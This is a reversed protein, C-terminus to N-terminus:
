FRQFHSFALSESIEMVIFIFYLFVNIFSHISLYICVYMLAFDFLSMCMSLLVSIVTGYKM